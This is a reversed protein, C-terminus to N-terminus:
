PRAAGDQWAAQLARAVHIKVLQKKYAISGHIDAVVEAEEAAAEGAQRMLRDDLSKGRLLDEASKLRAPREVAAGIVVRAEKV